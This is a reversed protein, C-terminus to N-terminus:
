EDIEFICQSRQSGTCFSNSYRNYTNKRKRSRYVAVNLFVFAGVSMRMFPVDYILFYLDNQEVARKGMTFDNAGAELMFLIFYYQVDYTLM